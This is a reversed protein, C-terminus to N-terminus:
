QQWSCFYNQSPLSNLHTVRNTSLLVHMLLCVTVMTRVGLSLGPVNRQLLKPLYCKFFFFHGRMLCQSSFSKYCLLEIGNGEMQWTSKQCMWFYFHWILNFGSHKMRSTSRILLGQRTFPSPRSRCDSMCMLLRLLWFLSLFFFFSFIPSNATLTKWWLGTKGASEHYLLLDQSLM